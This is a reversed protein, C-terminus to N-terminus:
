LFALVWMNNRAIFRWWLYGEAKQYRHRNSSKKVGRSYIYIKNGKILIRESYISKLILMKLM